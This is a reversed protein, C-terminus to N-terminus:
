AGYSEEDYLGLRFGLIARATEEGTLAAGRGAAIETTPPADIAARRM